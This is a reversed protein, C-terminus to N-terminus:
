TRRAAYGCDVVRGREDFLDSRSRRDRSARAAPRLMSRTSMNLETTRALHDDIPAGSQLWSGCRQDTM